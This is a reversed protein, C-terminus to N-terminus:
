GSKQEQIDKNQLNRMAKNAEEDEEDDSDSDAQKQDRDRFVKGEEIEQELQKKYLEM